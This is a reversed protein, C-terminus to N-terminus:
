SPFVFLSQVILCSLRVQADFRGILAQVWEGPKQTAMM